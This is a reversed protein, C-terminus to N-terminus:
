FKPWEHEEIPFPLQTALPRIVKLDIEDQYPEYKSLLVQLLSLFEQKDRTDTFAQALTQAESFLEDTPGPPLSHDSIDDSDSNGFQLDEADLTAQETKIQGMIPSMAVLPEPETAQGFRKLLDNRYYRLIVYSYWAITLLTVATLYQHWSIANLM